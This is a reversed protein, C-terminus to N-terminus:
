LREWVYDMSAVGMVGAMDQRGPSTCYDGWQKIQWKDKRRGHLKWFLWLLSRWVGVGRLLQGWDEIGWVVDFSVLCLPKWQGGLDQYEFHCVKYIDGREPTAEWRKEVPPFITWWKLCSWHSKKQLTGQSGLVMVWEVRQSHKRCVGDHSNYHTRQNNVNRDAVHGLLEELFLLWLTWITTDWFHASSWLMANVDDQQNCSKTKMCTFACVGMCPCM